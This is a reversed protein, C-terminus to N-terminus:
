CVSSHKEKIWILDLLYKQFTAAREGHQWLLLFASSFAFSSTHFFLYASLTRFLKSFSLCPLLWEFVRYCIIKVWDRHNKAKGKVFCYFMVLFYDRKPRTYRFNRLTSSAVCCSNLNFSNRMALYNLLIPKSLQRKYTGWLYLWYM